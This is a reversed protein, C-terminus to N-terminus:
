YLNINYTTVLSSYREVDGVLIYDKEGGNKVRCTLRYKRGEKLIGKRLVLDKQYIKTIAKRNLNPVSVWRGTSKINTDLDWQYTVNFFGEQDCNGCNCTVTLRRQTNVKDACNM